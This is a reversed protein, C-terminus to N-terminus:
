LNSIFYIVQQQASRASQHPMTSTPGYGAYQANQQSQPPNPYMAHTSQGYHQQPLRQQPQAAQQPTLNSYNQQQMMGSMMGAQQPPYQMKQPDQQTGYASMHQRYANPPQTQSQRPAQSVNAHGYGINSASYPSPQTNNWASLDNMGGIGAVHQDPMGYMGTDTPTQYSPYQAQQQTQQQQMPHPSRHRSYSGSPPGMPRPPAANADYRYYADRCM